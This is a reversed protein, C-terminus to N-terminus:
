LDQNLKKLSYSSFSLKCWHSVLLWPIGYYKIVNAASYLASAYTVGWVMFAIGINSM